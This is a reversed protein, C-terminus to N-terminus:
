GGEPSGLIGYKVVSYLNVHLPIPLITLFTVSKASKFISTTLGLLEKKNIKKITTKGHM